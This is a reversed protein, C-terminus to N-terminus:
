GGRLGRVWREPDETWDDDSDPALSVEVDVASKGVYGFWRPLHEGDPSELDLFVWPRGAVTVVEPPQLAKRDKPPHAVFDQRDLEIQAALAAGEPVSERGLVSVEVLVPDVWPDGYGHATWEGLQRVAHRKAMGRPLDCSLDTGPITVREVEVSELDWPRGQQWALGLAAAHLGLSGVALVALTRELWVHGDFLAWPRPMRFTLVGTAALLAGTALGGLHAAMGVGPLLSALLNYALYVGSHIAVAKRELRPLGDSRFSLVFLAGMVGFVGGSAGIGLQEPGVVAALLESGAISVGYLLLFRWTGVLKELLVGLLILGYLNGVAHRIGSHLWGAALLRWWEGAFVWEGRSGGMRALTQTSESAGWLVELFWLLAIAVAIGAVGWPTGDLSFRGEEGLDREGAREAARLVEATPSPGTLARAVARDLGPVVQGEALKLTGDLLVQGFTVGYNDLATPRRPDLPIDPGGVFIVERHLGKVIGVIEPADRATLDFWCSRVTSNDPLADAGSAILLVAADAAATVLLAARESREVLMAAATGGDPAIALAGCIRNLFQRASEDM